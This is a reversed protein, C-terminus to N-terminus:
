ECRADKAEGDMEEACDDEFATEAFCHGILISIRKDQKRTVADIKTRQM